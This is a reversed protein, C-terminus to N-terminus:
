KSDGSTPQSRSFEGADLAGDKNTDVKDFTVELASFASAEQRTIKGDSNADITKFAPARAESSALAANDAAQALLPSILAMSTIIILKKM